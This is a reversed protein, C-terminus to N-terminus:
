SRTFGTVGSAGSSCASSPTHSSRIEQRWSRASCAHRETTRHPAGDAPRIDTARPEISSHGADDSVELVQVPNEVLRATDGETVVLYRVQRIGLDGGKELDATANLLPDLAELDLRGSLDDLPGCRQPLVLEGRLVAPRTGAVQHPHQGAALHPVRVPEDSHRFEQMAGPAHGAT